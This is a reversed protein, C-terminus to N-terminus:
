DDMMLEPHIISFMQNHYRPQVFAGIGKTVIEFEGIVDGQHYLYRGSEYFRPKFNQGLFALLRENGINYFFPHTEFTKQYIFISVAIRLQPPLDDIFAALRGSAMKSDFTINNNIEKCIYSPLDYQQQLKALFM